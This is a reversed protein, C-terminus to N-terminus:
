FEKKTLKSNEICYVEDILDKFVGLGKTFLGHAVLLTISKPNFPRLQQALKVFTAGGDCIDDVILLDKSEIESIDACIKTALIDGTKLDRQKLCQILGDGYKAIKSARKEAGADPSIIMKGKALEQAYTTMEIIECNNLLAPLVQSHPELVRIIPFGCNNILDCMVKLSFSDGFNCARDQRSYPFYGINLAPLPAKFEKYANATLLLAMISDSGTFVWNLESKIEKINVGVEGAPFKFYIEIM